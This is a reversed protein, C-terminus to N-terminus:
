FRWVREWRLLLENYVAVGARVRTLLVSRVLCSSSAFVCLSLGQRSVRVLLVRRM